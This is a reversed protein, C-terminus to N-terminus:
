PFVSKFIHPSKPVASATGKRGFHDPLPTAGFQGM